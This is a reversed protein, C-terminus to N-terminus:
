PAKANFQDTQNKRIGAGTFTSTFCVGSDSNIFQATVGGTAPLPLAPDPVSTGKAKLSIKSKNATSGKASIGTVGSSAGTKDKFKIGTTRVLSWCPVGACDQDGAVSATLALGNDAYM